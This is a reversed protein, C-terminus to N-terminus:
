RHLAFARAVKRAGQALDTSSAMQRVTAPRMLQFAARLLLWDLGVAAAVALLTATFLAALNIMTNM